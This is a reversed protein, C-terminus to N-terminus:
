ASQANSNDKSIGPAVVFPEHPALRAAWFSFSSDAIIINSMIGLMYFGQAEGLEPPVPVRKTCQKLTETIVMAAPVDDSFIVCTLAKKTNRRSVEDLADKYYTIPMGM